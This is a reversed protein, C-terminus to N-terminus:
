QLAQAFAIRGEVGLDLWGFAAALRQRRFEAAYSGTIGGLGGCHYNRYEGLQDFAWRGNGEPRFRYALYADDLSRMEIAREAPIRAEAVMECMWRGSEEMTDVTILLRDDVIPYIILEGGVTGADLHVLGSSWPVNAIPATNRGYSYDYRNLQDTIVARRCRDDTCRRLRRAWIRRAGIILDRATMDTDASKEDILGNVVALRAELSALSVSKGEARATSSAASESRQGGVPTGCGSSALSAIVLMIKSPSSM